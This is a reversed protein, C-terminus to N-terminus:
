EALIKVFDDCSGYARWVTKLKLVKPAFRVHLHRKFSLIKYNKLRNQISTIICTFIIIHIHIIHYSNGHLSFHPFFIISNYTAVLMLRITCRVTEAADFQFNDFKHGLLLNGATNEKLETWKNLLLHKHSSTKNVNKCFCIVLSYIVLSLTSLLWLFEDGNLRMPLLLTICAAVSSISM